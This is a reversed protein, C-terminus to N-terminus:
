ELEIGTDAALKRFKAMDAQIRKEVQAPAVYEPVFGSDFVVTKTSPDEAAKRVAAALKVMVNPPTGAPAFVGQWWTADFGKLGQEDVTRVNPFRPDRAKGTTGLAKLRGADLYSKAESLQICDAAGGMVDQVAPANGKYPVHTVKIGAMQSLLESSFHNGSGLGATAINLKGPNAKAYAIYGAMDGFPLKPNCVLLTSYWFVNGAPAFSKLPDYNVSKSTAPLLAHTISNGYILTYGDPTARAAEQAGLRGGAGGKNDVVVPQGLEAAMVKAVQRAGIDTSGGAAAPVIMRIPHTPWDQASASQSLFSGVALVLAGGVAAKGNSGTM